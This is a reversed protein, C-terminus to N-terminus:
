RCVKTSDTYQLHGVLIFPFAPNDSNNRVTDVIMKADTYKWWCREGPSLAQWDCGTLLVLSLWSLKRMGSSASGSRPGAVLNFAGMQRKRPM